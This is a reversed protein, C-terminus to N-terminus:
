ECAMIIQINKILSGQQLPSRLIRWKGVLRGFAMEIRIRLQSLHFNFSDKEPVERQSGTFHVLVKNSLTYASDGLVYNFEPINQLIEFFKTREIAVQDPVKEPTAIAIFTFRLWSYFQCRNEGKM